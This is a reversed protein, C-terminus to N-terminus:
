KWGRADLHPLSALTDVTLHTCLLLSQTFAIENATVTKHTDLKDSSGCLTCSENAGLHHHDVPRLQVKLLKVKCQVKSRAKQLINLKLQPGSWYAHAFLVERAPLTGSSVLVWISCLLLLHGRLGALCIQWVWGPLGHAFCIGQSAQKWVWDTGVRGLSLLNDCLDCMPIVAKRSTIRCTNAVFYFECKCVTYKGELM